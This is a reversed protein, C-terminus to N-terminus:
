TDIWYDPKRHQHALAIIFIHDLFVKEAESEANEEKQFM